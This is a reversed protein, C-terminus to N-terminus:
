SATGMRQNADRVQSLAPEIGSLLGSYGKRFAERARTLLSEAAKPGVELRRAIEKVPLDDLYKWELVRGYHPPLADLAEHVLEHVENRLASREPGDFGSDGLALSTGFIDENEQFEVEGARKKGRRFHGAIENRCVACMWTMLAAEGRFTALKEIVKCLSSQVVDSALDADGQLRKVAFRYLPPIYDNSFREFANQDGAIMASVMQREEQTAKMPHSEDPTGDGRRNEQNSVLSVRIRRAGDLRNTGRGAQVALEEFSEATERMWILSPPQPLRRRWM